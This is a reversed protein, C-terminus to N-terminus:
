KYSNQESPLSPKPSNNNSYFSNYINSRNSVNDIKDQIVQTRSKSEPPRQDRLSTKSLKSEFPSASCITAEEEFKSKIRSLQFGKDPVQSKFNKMFADDNVFSSKSSNIKGYPSKLINPHEAETVQRNCYPDQIIGIRSKYAHPGRLSTKSLSSEFSSERWTTAVEKSKSKASCYMRYSSKDQSQREAVAFTKNRSSDKIVETRHTNPHPGHVPLSPKSLVSEFSSESCTTAEEESRSKIKSPQIGKDHVLTEVQDYFCETRSANNHPRQVPLSTKSFTSEFFSKNCITTEEESKSKTRSLQFGEDPVQSKLNTTFDNDTVFSHWSPHNKGHLSKLISPRREGETVPKLINPLYVDSVTRNFFANQNIEIRSKFADPGKVPLSTQSLASEFSPEICTTAEEESISKIRSLEVDQDPVHSDMNNNSFTNDSGFSPRSSTYDRHHNTCVQVNPCLLQQTVTLIQFIM